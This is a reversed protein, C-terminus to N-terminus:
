QFSVRHCRLMEAWKRIEHSCSFAWFEGAEVLAGLEALYWRGNKHGSAQKRVGHGAAGRVMLVWVLVRSCGALWLRHTHRQQHGARTGVQTQRGVAADRQLVGAM